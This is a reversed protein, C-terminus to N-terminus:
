GEIGRVALLRAQLAYPGTARHWVIVLAGGVIILGASLGMWLGAAGLGARFCLWWGAPLGILWHGALNWLMPTRTDGLGRLVGTASVQLGDFIQFMAALVLLTVGVALVQPDRTFLSLLPRGAVLFLLAACCMFMVAVALTTWGAARVGAADRRGAAQGVRVAGASSLGFPVMFTLTAIQLAIQHAALAAPMLKAVLATAAAFVGVELTVQLAAPLGLRTLRKLAYISPRWAVHWLSTTHVTRTEHRVIAGVLVAAMYVRAIVTAWAAGVSGLAPAGLHGYILAWNGIVNVFNASLLAFTVPAVLGMAQLYRRCAAYLLLPWISWAVVELYSAMIPRVDPHIGFADLRPAGLWILGVLPISVALGLWLGQWLWRRCEDFRGGGYAQSVETDLGLMLGMGFVCVAIFFTHGAGVGGLAAAGLPGVMLADIVGMSAWGLEAIVIPGALRLLPRLEDRVPRSGHVLPKRDADLPM